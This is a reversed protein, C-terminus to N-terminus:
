TTPKLGVKVVIIFRRNKLFKWLQVLQGNFMYAVFSRDTGADLGFEISIFSSGNYNYGYNGYITATLFNCHM